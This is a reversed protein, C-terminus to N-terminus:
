ATVSARLVAEGDVHNRYVKVANLRPDILAAEIGGFGDGDFFEAIGIADRVDFVAHLEKSTAGFLEADGEM